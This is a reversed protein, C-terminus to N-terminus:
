CVQTINEYVWGVICMCLSVCMWICVSLHMDKEEDMYAQEDNTFINYRVTIEGAKWTAVERKSICGIRIERRKDERDLLALVLYWRQKLSNGDM